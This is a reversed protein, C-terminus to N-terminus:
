PMSCNNREEASMSDYGANLLTCVQTVDQKNDDKIKELVKVGLPFLGLYNKAAEFSKMISLHADTVAKSIDDSEKKQIFYNYALVGLLVTVLLALINALVVVTDINYSKYRWLSFAISAIALVCAIGIAIKLKM